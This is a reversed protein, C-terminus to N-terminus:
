KFGDSVLNPVARVDDDNFSISKTDSEENHEEEDDEESLAPEQELMYEKEDNLDVEFLNDTGGSRICKESMEYAIGDVNYDGDRSISSYKRQNSIKHSPQITQSFRMSARVIAILILIIGVSFCLLQGISDVVPLINLYLNFRTKLSPPLDPM